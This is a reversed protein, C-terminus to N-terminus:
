GDAASDFLCAREDGVTSAKCQAAIGATAPFEIQVAYRDIMDFLAHANGVHDNGFPEDVDLSKTWISRCGLIRRYDSCDVRSRQINSCQDGHSARSSQRAFLGRLHPATPPPLLM